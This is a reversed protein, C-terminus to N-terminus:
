DVRVRWRRNQTTHEWGIPSLESIATQSCKSQSCSQRRLRPRPPPTRWRGGTGKGIMCSRLSETASMLLAPFSRAWLAVSQSRRQPPRRRRSNACTRWQRFRPSSLFRSALGNISRTACGRLRLSCVLSNWASTPPTSESPSLMVKGLQLTARLANCM